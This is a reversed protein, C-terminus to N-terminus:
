WIGVVMVAVVLGLHHGFENSSSVRNGWKPPDINRRVAENEAVGRLIEM